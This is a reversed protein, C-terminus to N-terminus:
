ERRSKSKTGLGTTSGLISLLGLPNATLKNQRNSSDLKIYLQM